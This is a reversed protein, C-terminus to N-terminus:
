NSFEAKFWRTGTDPNIARYVQKHLPIFPSEWFLKFAKVHGKYRGQKQISSPFYNIPNLLGLTRIADEGVSIAAAPRRILKFPETAMSPSPVLAGIETNLRRIQYELLSLIYSIFRNDRAEKKEKKNPEWINFAIISMQIALYYAMETQARILNYIEGEDYKERVAKSAEILHMIGGMAKMETRLDRLFRWETVYYGETQEDLDQDYESFAFRRDLAPKLYKRYMMMMRGYSVQEIATKDQKNYIGHLRHNIGAIRRTLKYGDDVIQVVKYKIKGQITTPKYKEHKDYTDYTDDIVKYVAQKYRVVDGTNYQKEDDFSEIKNSQLIFKDGNPKTYGDKVFLKAGLGHDEYDYTGDEKRYKVELSDWLNTENGNNDLMKYHIAVAIATRNQMWHEGTDNMFYLTSEDFLRKIAGKRDWNLKGSSKDYDQLVDFMEDFLSLKNTKYRDGIQKLYSPLLKRYAKDALHIEKNTFFQGAFGEIRMMVEGTAVNSIGALMNIAYQNLATIRNMLNATKAVDLKSDGITGEDKVYRGYVHMDFMTELKQQINPNNKMIDNQDFPSYKSLRSEKQGSKVDREMIVDKSLELEDIVENMCKYDLAMLSYAQLTSVIDMSMDEETEGDRINLYYLPLTQLKEGDVGLKVGYDIDDSRRVVQDKLAEFFQETGEKIRSSSKIKEFLDKRIKITQGIKISEVPLYSDMEYKINLIKDAFKYRPDNPNASIEKYVDSSYDNRQIGKYAGKEVFGGTAPQRVQSGDGQNVWETNIAYWKQIENKKKLITERDSPNTGYKSDIYNFFEKEAKLYEGYNVPSIYYGTRTGDKYREYIFSFDTVGDKEAQLAAAQIDKCVDLWYDKAKKRQVKIAQDLIKLADDSSNAMSDFLRDTFSIDHEARELIDNLSVTTINGKSDVTKYKGFTVRVGDGCFQSLFEVVIPKVLAVYSPILQTEIIGALQSLDDIAKDTFKRYEKTYLRKDENLTLALMENCNAFSDIYMKMQRLHQAQEKINTNDQSMVSQIRDFDKQLSRLGDQEYEIYDYIGEIFRGTDYLQQLQDLMIQQQNLWKENGKRKSYLNYKRQENNIIYQLAQKEDKVKKTLRYLKQEDYLKEVAVNGISNSSLINTSIESAMREANDIANQVDKPNIMRFLNKIADIVRQILNRSINYTQKDYANLLQKQLLQGAAEEALLQEDGNYVQSYHGYENGLIQKALGTQNIYDLYRKVILNDKMARLAIHCFEESLAKEGSENNAIRIMQILDGAFKRATSFDAVGFFGSLNQEYEEMLGVSINNRRLIDMLQINLSRYIAMEKAQASNEQNKPVADVYIMQKGNEESLQVRAVYNEKYQSQKNFRIATDLAENFSQTSYERKNFTNSNKDYYGLTNNIENVINDQSIFDELGFVNILSQVTPENFEDYSLQNGFQLDFDDNKVRLYIDLAKDRDNNTLSLLDIFLKSGSIEDTKINKVKPIVWCSKSM